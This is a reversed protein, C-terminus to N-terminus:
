PAVPASVKEELTVRATAFTFWAEIEERQAAAARDIVTQLETFQTAGVRYREQALEVRERSLAASREALQLRRYANGLDILASRVEREVGLRAARLEQEADARAAEAQAVSASTRFGDFLPLSLSVGFSVSRDPPNFDFLADYEPLSLNRNFGANASITPWRAGKAVGIRRGAAATTAELEAMRPSWRLAAAILSDAHLTAPDFTPPLESDLDVDPGADLGLTERLALHAKQAEGRARELDQERTAVDIQAGLVDVRNAGAVRFLRETAGLQERASALQQEQFHILRQTRLADYYRRTVEGRLRALEGEARAVAARTSARAARLENMRSGGDFLTLDLSIGQSASSGSIDLPDNRRVPNGFDDVGTVIHSSFGGFGVNARLSPLFAGWGQREQAAAVDRDNLTRLYAPNRERAIRLADDLSLRAPPEQALATFAIVVCWVAPTLVLTIRSPGRKM